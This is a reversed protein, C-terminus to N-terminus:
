KLGELKRNLKRIEEKLLDVPVTIIKEKEDVKCTFSVWTADCWGESLLTEITM